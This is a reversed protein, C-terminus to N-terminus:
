DNAELHTKYYICTHQPLDVLHCAAAHLCGFKSEKLTYLANYLSNLAGAKLESAGVERLDSLVAHRPAM